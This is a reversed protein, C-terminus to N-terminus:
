RCDPLRYLDELWALDARKTRPVRKRSASRSREITFATVSEMEALHLAGTTTPLFVFGSEGRTVEGLSVQHEANLRKVTWTEFGSPTYRLHHFM